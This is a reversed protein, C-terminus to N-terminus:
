WPNTGKRLPSHWHRTEMTTKSNVDVRSHKLLLRVIAAHGWAAAQALPTRGHINKLDVELGHYGLIQKALPLNGHRAALALPTNGRHDTANIDYNCGAVPEAAVQEM